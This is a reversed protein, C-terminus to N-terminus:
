YLSLDEETEFIIEGSSQMSMATVEASGQYGKEFYGVITEELQKGNKDRYFLNISSESFKESPTIKLQYTEKPELSPILIKEENYFYSIEMEDLQHESQNTITITIASSFMGRVPLVFLIVLLLAIMLNVLWRKM